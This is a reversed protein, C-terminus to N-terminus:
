DSKVFALGFPNFGVTIEGMYIPVPNRNSIEYVTVKDSAGGSHTVYLKKTNNTVVLNHPVPYPTNSSGIV